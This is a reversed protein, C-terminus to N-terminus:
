DHAQERGDGRKRNVLFEASRWYQDHRVSGSDTGDHRDARCNNDNFRDRNHQRNGDDVVTRRVDAQQRRHSGNLDEPHSPDHSHIGHEVIHHQSGAPTRDRGTVGAQDITSVRALQAELSELMATLLREDFLKAEGVAIGNQVVTAQQPPNGQAAKPPARRRRIDPIL